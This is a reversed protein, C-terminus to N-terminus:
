NVWSLRPDWATSEPKSTSGSESEKDTSRPDRIGQNPNRVRFGLTGFNVLLIKGPNRFRSSGVPGSKTDATDRSQSFAAVYCVKQIKVLFQCSSIVTKYKVVSDSM